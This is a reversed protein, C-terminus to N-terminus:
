TVRFCRAKKTVALAPMVDMEPVIRTILRFSISRLTRSTTLGLPLSSFTGARTSHAIKLPLFQGHLHAKVTEATVVRAGVRMRVNDMVNFNLNGNLALRSSSNARKADEISFASEPLYDSSLVFDPNITSAVVGDPVNIM